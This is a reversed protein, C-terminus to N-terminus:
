GVSQPPLTPVTTRGDKALKLEPLARFINWLWVRGYVDLVWGTASRRPRGLRLIGGEQRPGPSCSSPRWACLGALSLAGGPEPSLQRLAGNVIFLTM